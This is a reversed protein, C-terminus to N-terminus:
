HRSDDLSFSLSRGPPDRVPVAFRKWICSGARSRRSCLRRFDIDEATSVPEHVIMRGAIGLRGPFVDLRRAFQLCGGISKLNFQVVMYHDTMALM